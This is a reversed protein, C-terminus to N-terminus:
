APGQPGTLGIPGQPGVAGDAGDNGAPGQPGTLGIPGQPGVAGDAGDNGAPGQPGTLGIPGQPGVAGDAGDNGVPGQPGQPGTLDISTFSTGSPNNITFTGDGNDTFSINNSGGVSGECLSKWDNGDFQFVCNKDTNYVLGGELPKIKQMLSTNVRSLVLVKNRSELEILSAGDIQDPSDGVKLQAMAAQALLLVLILISKNFRM